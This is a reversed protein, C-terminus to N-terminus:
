MVRGSLRFQIAAVLGKRSETETPLQLLRCIGHLVDDSLEQLSNCSTAAHVLEARLSRDLSASDTRKLQALLRRKDGGLMGNDVWDRFDNMDEDSIDDRTAFTKSYLADDSYILRATAGPRVRYPLVLRLQNGEHATGAPNGVVGVEFGASRRDDDYRNHQAKHTSNPLLWPYKTKSVTWPELTYQGENDQVWRSLQLKARPKVSSM